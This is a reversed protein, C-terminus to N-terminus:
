SRSKASQRAQHLHYLWEDGSRKQGKGPSPDNAVYTQIQHTTLEEPYDEIPNGTVPDVGDSNRFVMVDWVDPERKKGVVIAQHYRVSPDDPRELYADLPMRFALNDSVKISRVEAATPTRWAAPPPPPRSSPGPADEPAPPARPAPPRPPPRSSPWPASAGQATPVVSGPRRPPTSPMWNAWDFLNYM